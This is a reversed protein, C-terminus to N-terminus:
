RPTNVVTPALSRGIIQAHDIIALVRIDLRSDQYQSETLVRQFIDSNLGGNVGSQLARLADRNAPLLSSDQLVLNIEQKLLNLERQLTYDAAHYEFVMDQLVPPIPINDLEDREAKKELYTEAKFHFIQQEFHTKGDEHSREILATVSNDDNVYIYSAAANKLDTLTRSDVNTEKLTKEKYEITLLTLGEKEDLLVPKDLGADVIWKISDSRYRLSTTEANCSADNLSIITTSPIGTSGSLSLFQGQSSLQLDDGHSPHLYQKMEYEGVKIPQQKYLRWVEVREIRSAGPEWNAISRFFATDSVFKCRHISNKNSPKPVSSLIKGDSRSHIASRRTKSPILSKEKKEKSRSQEVIILEGNPSIDLLNTPILQSHFLSKLFGSSPQQIPTSNVLNCHATTKDAKKNISYEELEKQKENWCIFRNDKQLPKVSRLDIDKSLAIRCNPDTCSVLVGQQVTAPPTGTMIRFLFYEGIKCYPFADDKKSDFNIDIGKTNLKTGFGYQYLTYRSSKM